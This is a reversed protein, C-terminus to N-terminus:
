KGTEKAKPSILGAVVEVLRYAKSLLENDKPTPTLNVVVLAIAHLSVLVTVIEAGHETIFEM